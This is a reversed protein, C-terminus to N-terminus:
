SNCPRPFVWRNQLGWLGMRLSVPDKRKPRTQSPFEMSKKGHTARHPLCRIGRCPPHNPKSNQLPSVPVPYSDVMGKFNGSNQSFCPAPRAAGSKRAGRVLPRPKTGLHSFSIAAMETSSAGAPSSLIKKKSIFHAPIAKAVGPILHAQRAAMAFRTDGVSGPFCGMPFSLTQGDHQESLFSLGPRPVLRTVIVNKLAPCAEGPSNGEVGNGGM